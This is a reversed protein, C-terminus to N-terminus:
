KGPHRQRDQNGTGQVAVMRGQQEAGMQKKNGHDQGGGGDEFVEMTGTM